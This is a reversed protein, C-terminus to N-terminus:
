LIFKVRHICAAYSIWASSHCILIIGTTFTYVFVFISKFSKPFIHIKKIEEHAWNKDHLINYKIRHLKIYYAWPSLCNLFIPILLITSHGFIYYFAMTDQQQFFNTITNRNISITVLCLSYVICYLSYQIMFLKDLYIRSTFVYIIHM